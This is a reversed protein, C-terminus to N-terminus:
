GPAFYNRLREKPLSVSFCSGKGEKSKAKIQGGHESIVKHTIALGLGTGKAKTTFFPNFINEATESSFGHGTDWFNIVIRTNECSAHIFIAGGNPMAQTGNQMLNIFVKELQDADAM